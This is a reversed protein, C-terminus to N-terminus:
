TWLTKEKTQLRGNQNVIWANKPEKLRNMSVISDFSNKKAENKWFLLDNQVSIVINKMLFLRNKMFFSENNM